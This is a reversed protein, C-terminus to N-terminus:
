RKTGRNRWRTIAPPSCGPTQNHLSIRVGCRYPPHNLAPNSRRTRKRPLSSRPSSAIDEGTVTQILRPSEADDKL